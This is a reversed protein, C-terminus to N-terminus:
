ASTSEDEATLGMQCVLCCHQHRTDGNSAKYYFTEYGFFEDKIETKCKNCVIKKCDCKIEMDASRKTKVGNHKNRAIAEAVDM